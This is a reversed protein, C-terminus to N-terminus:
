SILDLHARVIVSEFQRLLEAGERGRPSLSIRMAGVPSRTRKREVNILGNRELEERARRAAPPTLDSERTFALMSVPENLHLLQVIVYLCDYADLRAFSAPTPHPRRKPV